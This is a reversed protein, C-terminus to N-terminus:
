TRRRALAKGILWVIGFLVVVGIIGAVITAMPGDLGPFVYDAIISFPSDQGAGIFGVDEAVRELGDPDASAWIAAAIVVIVAVTLGALVWRIYSRNPHHTDTQM